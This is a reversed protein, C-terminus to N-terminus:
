NTEYFERALGWMGKYVNWCENAIGRGIEITAERYYVVTPDDHQTAFWKATKAMDIVTKSTRYISLVNGM